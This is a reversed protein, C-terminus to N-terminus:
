TTLYASTVQHITDKIFSIVERKCEEETGELGDNWWSLAKNYHRGTNVVCRALEDHTDSYANSVHIPLVGKTSIDLESELARGVIGYLCCKKADDSTPNIVEGNADEASIEKCWGIGGETYEYISRELVKVVAKAEDQSMKM